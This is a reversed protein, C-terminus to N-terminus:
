SACRIKSSNSGSSSPMVGSNKSCENKQLFHSWIAVGLVHGWPSSSRTIRDPVFTRSISRAPLFGGFSNERGSTAWIRMSAM